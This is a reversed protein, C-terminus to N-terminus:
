RFGFYIFNVCSLFRFTKGILSVSYGLWAWNAGSITFGRSTSLSSLQVTGLSRTSRGYVVSAAGSFWNNMQLAGIIVDDFGDGNMDGASSVSMGSCDGASSGFIRFGQAGTLVDLNIDSFEAKRGLMVYSVGTSGIQGNSAYPAGIIIDDFGDNNVDGASSVSWGTLAGTNATSITFGESTDQYGQENGFMVYCKDAYPVGIILDDYGDGNIDGANSVSRGSYDYSIAPVVIFQQNLVLAGNTKSGYVIFNVGVSPATVNVNGYGSGVVQSTYLFPLVIKFTIGSPGATSNKRLTVIV